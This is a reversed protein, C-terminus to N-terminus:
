EQRPKMTLLIGAGVIGVVFAVWFGWHWFESLCGLGSPSAGIGQVVQQFIAHEM